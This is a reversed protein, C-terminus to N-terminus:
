QTPKWWRLSLTWLLIQSWSDARVNIEYIEIEVEIIILDQVGEDERQWRAHDSWIKVPFNNTECSKRKLITISREVELNLPCGEFRLNVSPLTRGPSTSAPHYVLMFSLYFLERHSFLLALYKTSSGSPPTSPSPPPSSSPPSPTASQLDTSPSSGAEVLASKASM